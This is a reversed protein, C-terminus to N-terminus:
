NNSCFKTTALYKPGLNKQDLEKKLRFIKKDIFNKPGVVNKSEVNRQMLFKKAGCNKPVM